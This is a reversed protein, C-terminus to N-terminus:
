QDILEAFPCKKRHRYPKVDIWGGKGCDECWWVRGAHFFGAICLIARIELKSPM